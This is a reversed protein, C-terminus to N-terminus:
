HQGIRRGDNRRLGLGFEAFFRAKSAGFPHQSNLLYNVIKDRELILQDANPLNMAPTVAKSPM